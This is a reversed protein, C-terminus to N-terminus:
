HDLARCRLAAAPAPLAYATALVLYALRGVVADRRHGRGALFLWAEPQTGVLGAHSRHPGPGAACRGAGAAALLPRLDVGRTIGPPPRRRGTRRGSGALRAPGRGNAEGATQYPDTDNAHQVLKNTGAGGFHPPPPYLEQAMFMFLVVTTYRKEASQRTSGTLKSIIFADAIGSEGACGISTAVLWPSRSRLMMSGAAALCNAVTGSPPM